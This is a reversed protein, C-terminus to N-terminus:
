AYARQPRLMIAQVVQDAQQRLAGFKIRRLEPSRAVM